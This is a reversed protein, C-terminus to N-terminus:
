SRMLKPIPLLQDLRKAVRTTPEDLDGLRDQLFDSWNRVHQLKLELLADRMDEQTRASLRSDKLELSKIIGHQVNMSLGIDDLAGLELDFQPTQSWM